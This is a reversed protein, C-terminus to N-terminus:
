RLYLEIIKFMVEVINFEVAIIKSIDETIRFIVEIIKYIYGSSSLKFSVRFQSSFM